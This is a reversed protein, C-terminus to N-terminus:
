GGAAELGARLDNPRFVIERDAAAMVVALVLRAPVHHALTAGRRPDTVMRLRRQPLDVFIQFRFGTVARLLRDLAHAPRDLIIRRRPLRDILRETAAACGYDRSLHGAADAARNLDRRSIDINRHLAPLVKGALLRHKVAVTSAEVSDGRLPCALGKGCLAIIITSKELPEVPRSGSQRAAAALRSSPRRRCGRLPCQARVRRRSASRACANRYRARCPHCWPWSLPRQSETRRFKRRCRCVPM